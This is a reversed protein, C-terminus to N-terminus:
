PCATAILAPNGGTVKSGVGFEVTNMLNRFMDRMTNDIISPDTIKCNISLDGCKSLLDNISNLSGGGVLSASVATFNELVYGLSLIVQDVEANSMNCSTKELTGDGNTPTTDLVGRISGGLRAMNLITLFVNDSNSRQTLTGIEVIKATAVACDNGSYALGVIPSMFIKFLASSSTSGISTLYALTDLGCRGAYAEATLRRIQNESRRSASIKVTLIEIAKDYQKNDLYKVADNIYAEDNAENSLGNLINKACGCNFVIFLGIGFYLVSKNKMMRHKM